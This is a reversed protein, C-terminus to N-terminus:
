LTCIVSNCSPYVLVLHKAGVTVDSLLICLKIATITAGGGGFNSGLVWPGKKV